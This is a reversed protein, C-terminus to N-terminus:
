LFRLESCSSPILLLVLLKKFPDSLIIPVPLRYFSLYFSTLAGLDPRMSLFVEVFNLVVISRASLDPCWDGFWDLLLLFRKFYLM